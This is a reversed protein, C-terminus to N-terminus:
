FTMTDIDADTMTHEWSVEADKEAVEAASPLQVQISNLRHIMMSWELVSNSRMAREADTKM